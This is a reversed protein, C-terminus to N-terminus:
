VFLDKGTNGPAMWLMVAVFLLLLLPLSNAVLIWDGRRSAPGLRSVRADNTFLGDAYWVGSRVADASRFPEDSGDHRAGLVGNM